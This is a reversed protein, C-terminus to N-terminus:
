NDLKCTACSTAPCTGCFNGTGSIPASEGSDSKSFAAFTSFLKRAPAHCKPCTASDGAESFSRRLEFRVNCGPCIYEYIPM